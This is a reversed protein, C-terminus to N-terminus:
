RPQRAQAVFGQLRQVVTQLEPTVAAFRPDALWAQAAALSQADLNALGNHDPTVAQTLLNPSIMYNANPYIGAFTQLEAPSIAPNLLYSELVQRQQPDSVNARAFYDARTSERGAMLDPAAELSALVTAPNNIVLRDMALYAAHAVAPNDQSRVLTSLTPVFATGGLYVPVDFSELYGVSPNQQWPAYQLMAAMKQQLLARGDDSSDGLALSRLAVAWEDPSDMSALVVRAYDAAAAPDVRALDDLLFTRLTPAEDLTGNSALKFGLHTSADAKSDLFQRIAAVAEAKPMAALEKRLAALRQRIDKANSGQRLMALIDQLRHDGEKAAANQLSPAKASSALPMTPQSPRPHEPKPRPVLWVVALALAGAILVGRKFGRPMIKM